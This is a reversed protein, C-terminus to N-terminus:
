LGIDPFEPNEVIESGWPPTIIGSATLVDQGNYRIVRFEPAKYEFEKM